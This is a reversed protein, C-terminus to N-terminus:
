KYKNAIKFNKFLLSSYSPVNTFSMGYVSLNANGEYMRQHAKAPATERANLFATENKESDYITMFFGGGLGM